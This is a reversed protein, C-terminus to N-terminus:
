DNDEKESDHMHEKSFYSNNETKNKKKFRFATIIAAFMMIISGFWIFSVFPQHIFLIRMSGDGNFALLAFYLDGTFNSLYAIEGFTSNSHSSYSRMEPYATTILKNNKYIEIPVFDSIYNKEQVTNHQGIIFNYDKFKITSDPMILYEEQVSYFSSMNVGFALIVVGLHVAMASYFRKAKKISNFKGKKLTDYLRIVVAAFSFYISFGISLSWGKNYGFILMIIVGVLAIGMAILLRTYHKKLDLISFGTLLGFGTLIFMMFFFPRTVKNFYPVTFSWDTLAPSLTGFIIAITIAIFVWNSVLVIGERSNTNFDQVKILKKFDPNFLLVLLYLISTVIIFVIFYTGIANPGFSHVSEIVGSRTIFTGLITLEFTILLLIFTWIKLSGKKEYIYASHIFATATFWPMLSANEVPDWAWYGGWGLEVYAWWAGIVIGITLFAWVILSWPRVQKIWSSSFDRNMIAAVAHAIIVTYGVYGIYLTPPHIVMGINQLIPNLGQGDLPIIRSPEFPNQLFSVLLVFFGTTFAITLMVISQYKSDLNKLRFIEITGFIVLLLTWLLLSGAQGGWFATIKYFLPLSSDSYVVVYRLSFDSLILATILVTSASVIALGTTLFLYNGVVRIQISNKYFAIAYTIVAILSSILATYQFGLGLISLDM